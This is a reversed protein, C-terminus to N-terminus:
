IQKSALHIESVMKWAESDKEAFYKLPMEDLEWLIELFHSEYYLYYYLRLASEDSHIAFSYFNFWIHQPNPGSVRSQAYIMRM